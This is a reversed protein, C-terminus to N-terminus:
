YVMNVFHIILIMMLILINKNEFSAIIINKEQIEIIDCLRNSLNFYADEFEEFEEFEKIGDKEEKEEFDEKEEIEEFEEKEENNNNEKKEEQEEGENENNIKDNSKNTFILTSEFINFSIEFLCKITKTEISLQYIRFINDNFTVFKYNNLLKFPCEDIEQFIINTFTYIENNIDIKEVVFYNTTIIVLNKKEIRLQILNFQYKFKNNTYEGCQIFKNNIYTFFKIDCIKNQNEVIAFTNENVKISYEPYIHNKTNYVIHIEELISSIKSM